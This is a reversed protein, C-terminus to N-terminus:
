KLLELCDFMRVETVYDVEMVDFDQDTKILGTKYTYRPLVVFDVGLRHLKNVLTSAPDHAFVRWEVGYEDINKKM